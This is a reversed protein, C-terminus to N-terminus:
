ELRTTVFSGWKVKVAIEHPAGDPDVSFKGAVDMTGHTGSMEYVRRADGDPLRKFTFVGPVLTVGGEVVVEAATLKQTGGVPVMGLKPIYWFFEAVTQPAIVADPTTALEIPTGGKPTAIVTSGKREVVLGDTYELRDQAARYQFAMSPTDYVARGHIIVSADELRSFQAVERGIVAGNQKVDYRLTSILQGESPLPPLKAAPDSVKTVAALLAERKALKGRVMVQAPKALAALAALPDADVIILDARAGAAIVGFRGPTGLMAAPAATALRLAQWPTLGAEVLFALEDHVAFGPVVYPNGTDTGLVLKAGARFLDAVLKKAAQNRARTEAFREPTWKALRFDNRPDWQTRTAPAVLELGPTADLSKPDDLHGFREMVILTPCNWVGAAVTADVIAKDVKPAGKFPLYGDLHEITRQGSALVKEIGIATPVHGGFWIGQAKSEAIIATYAEVSLGGYVKIMDYGAAKQARVVARAEDATTVVASGPWTPPNGDVIPGADILTPGALTGDAIQKRWILHQPSGFMDRVTTVGNLLYMAFDRENWTHVHMDALGPVLWKGHVDIVTAGTTDISAAPAVRLIQDGRVVVTHDALAGEHDMPVVTAGVLAIDGAQLPEPKPKASKGCAFMALAVAAALRLM